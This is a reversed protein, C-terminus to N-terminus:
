GMKFVPIKKERPGPAEEEKKPPADPPAEEKKPKAVKPESKPKEEKEPTSTSAGNKKAERAAAAAALMKAKHEPSMTKKPKPTDDAVKPPDAKSMKKAKYEPEQKLEVPAVKKPVAVEGSTESEVKRAPKRGPKNLVIPPVTEKKTESFGKYVEIMHEIAQRNRIKSPAVQIDVMLHKLEKRLESIPKKTNTDAM